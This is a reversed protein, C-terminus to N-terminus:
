KAYLTMDGTVTHVNQTVEGTGPDFIGGGIPVTVTTGDPKEITSGGPVIITGDGNPKVVGGSPPIITTGDVQITGGDPVTISGDGGVTGGSPLTITTDDPDGEVTVKGGGEITVGGNNGVTGGNGPGVTIEPGDDGTQVTSGEPVDVTGDPSPKITGGGAPVTITTSPHNGVQAGGGGPITIEGNNGITGGNGPGVTIEPGGNGPKIASGGPVTVSGDGGVEVEKAPTVTAATGGTTITVEEGDSTVTTKPPTGVEVSEGPKVTTSGDAAVTTVAKSKSASAFSSTAAKERVSLTYTQGASLGTFAASDQWNTGDASFECGSFAGANTVTIANETKHVLIEEGPAAPRAPVTISVADSAHYDGTAAIRFQVALRTGDWGLTTVKMDATCRNWNTGDDTSYETEPTASISESMYNIMPTQPKNAKWHAYVTKDQTATISSTIQIGGTGSQDYWGAFVYGDNILTGTPLNVSNGSNAYAATHERGRDIFTVKYVMYQEQEAEAITNM